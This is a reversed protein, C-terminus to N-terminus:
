PSRSFTTDGGIKHPLISNQEKDTKHDAATSGPLRFTLGGDLKTSNRWCPLPPGVFHHADLPAYGTGPASLLDHQERPGPSPPDLGESVSRECLNLAIRSPAVGRMQSSLICGQEHLWSITWRDIHILQWALPAAYDRNGAHLTLCARHFNLLRHAEASVIPINAVSSRISAATYRPIIGCVDRYSPASLQMQPCCAVGCRPRARFHAQRSTQSVAGVDKYDPLRSL